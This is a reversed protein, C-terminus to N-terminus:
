DSAEMVLLDAAIPIAIPRDGGRVALLDVSDGRRVDPMPAELWSVPLALAWTSPALRDRLPQPASPDAASPAATLLASALAAALTKAAAVLGPVDAIRAGASGGPVTSLYAVYADALAEAAAEAAAEGARQARVGEVMRDQAARLGVVAVVAIAMVVAGVVLAQ